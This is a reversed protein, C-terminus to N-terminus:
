PDVTEEDGGRVPTVPDEMRNKERKKGFGWDVGFRRRMGLFIFFLLSPPLSKMLVKRRPPYSVYNPSPPIRTQLSHICSLYQKSYYM